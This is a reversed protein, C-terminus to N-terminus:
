HTLALQILSLKPRNMELRVEEGHVKNTVIGSMNSENMFLFFFGVVVMMLCM